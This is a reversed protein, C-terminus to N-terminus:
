RADYDRGSCVQLYKGYCTYNKGTTRVVTKVTFMDKIIISTIILLIFILVVKVWKKLRLKKM